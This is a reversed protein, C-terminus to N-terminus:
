GNTKGPRRRLHAAGFMAAAVPALLVFGGPLPIPTVDTPTLQLQAATLDSSGAWLLQNTSCTTCVGGMAFLYPGTGGLLANIADIAWIDLPVSVAPMRGPAGPTPFEVAGYSGGTGLDVYAAVGGNGDVLDQISGTYDFLEFGVASGVNLYSGNDAFFNLSGSTFTQSRLDTLDFAFYSRFGTGETDGVVINPSNPDTEGFSSYRGNDETISEVVTTHAMATGCALLWVASAAPLLNGTKMIFERYKHIITYHTYSTCFHLTLSGRRSGSFIFSLIADRTM